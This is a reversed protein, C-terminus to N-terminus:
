NAPLAKNEESIGTACGAAAEPYPISGFGIRTAGGREGAMIAQKQRRAHSRPASAIRRALVVGNIIVAETFQSLM